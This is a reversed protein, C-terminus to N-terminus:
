RGIKTANCKKILFIVGVITGILVVMAAFAVGVILAISKTSDSLVVTPPVYTTGDTNVVNVVTTASIIAGLDQLNLSSTAAQQVM